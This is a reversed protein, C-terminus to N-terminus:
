VISSLPGSTGSAGINSVSGSCLGHCQPSEGVGVNDIVLPQAMVTGSALVLLLACFHKKM